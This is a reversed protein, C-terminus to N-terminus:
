RTWSSRIVHLISRRIGPELFPWAAVVESVDETATEPKRPRVRPCMADLDYANGLCNLSNTRPEFGLVGTRSSTDQVRGSADNGATKKV